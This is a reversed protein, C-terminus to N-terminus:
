INGLLPDDLIDRGIKRKDDEIEKTMQPVVANFPTDIGSMGGQAVIYGNLFDIESRLGKQVLRLISSKVGRYRLGMAALVVVWIGAGLFTFVCFTLVNMRALGAPLSIYQRIGPLLRGVFTSIYGHHEFFRGANAM